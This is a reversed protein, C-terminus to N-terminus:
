NHYKLELVNFAKKKNLRYLPLSWILNLHDSDSVVGKFKITM